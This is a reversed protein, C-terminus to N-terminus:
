SHEHLEQNHAPLLEKEEFLTQLERDLRYHGNVEGREIISMARFYEEERTKDTLRAYRRTMEISSHGLIQQVCELRMGANLLDSACTHRLCHLTYDKHGLGAKNVYKAFMMRVAQYSMTHRGQGYFLFVKHPKREKLWAMLANIADDSLYVVRGVRTKEAEYIDIKKLKLNVDEVLTNLLVGIRMGTRLLILIMARDRVHDIVSLLRRTDEPEIARPLADPVKIIMRKSLVDPRITDNDILYRLFANVTHLRLKVTSAKLGRDQEYEIYASLDSRTISELHTKGSRHIFELFTSVSTSSNRLTSPKCNRRYQDRLYAEIHSKGPLNKQSLRRLADELGKEKKHQILWDRPHKGQYKRLADSEKWSQIHSLLSIYLPHEELKYYFGSQINKLESHLGQDTM